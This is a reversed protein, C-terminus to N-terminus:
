SLTPAHASPGQLHPLMWPAVASYYDILDGKTYGDRPWLVKDVNSVSPTQSGVKMNVREAAVSRCSRWSKKPIRIKACVSIHPSACIGSARGSPSACRRWWNPNRRLSGARERDRRQRIAVDQARAEALARPNRRAAQEFVRNRGFRRLAAEQGRVRGAAARRLRQPQRQPETWGGIVFEQELQAKIKVWDRSRREQYTSARKKGIIGELDNRKAQEYLKTGKGVVHKSYMVLTEDAILANSCRKASTWRRKRLDQGDAYLLDFAVYTLAVREKGSYQLRQFDSRGKKDLSVIEGDVVIPVSSFAHALDDMDPFKALLDLGNRSILKMKGREDITCIGRYGDWKIEFLWDDDDFPKDVLTALMPSKIKPMPERKVNRAHM